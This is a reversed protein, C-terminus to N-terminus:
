ERLLAELADAQQKLEDAADERGLSAYSTASERRERIEREVIERVYGPSLERRALDGAGVGQAAGAIVESQAAPARDLGVAEANDIAALVDRFASLATRERARLADRIAARLLSKWEDVSRTM